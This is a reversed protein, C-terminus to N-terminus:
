PLGPDKGCRILGPISGVDEHLRTLNTLWQAVVPVRGPTRILLLARICGWAQFRYRPPNGVLGDSPPSIPNGRGGVGGQLSVTVSEPPLVVPGSILNM